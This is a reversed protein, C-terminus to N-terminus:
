VFVHVNIHLCTCRHLLQGNSRCCPSINPSLFLFCTTQMEADTCSTYKHVLSGMKQYWQHVEIHFIYIFLSEVKRPILWPCALFSCPDKIQFGVLSWIALSCRAWVALAKRQKKNNNVMRCWSQNTSFDMTFAKNNERMLQALSKKFKRRGLGRGKNQHKNTSLKGLKYKMLKLFSSVNQIKTCSHQLM